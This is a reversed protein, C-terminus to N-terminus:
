SNENKRLLSSITFKYMEIKSVHDLSRLDIRFQIYNHMVNNAVYAPTHLQPLSWYNWVQDNEIIYRVDVEKGGDAQVFSIIVNSGDSDVYYQGNTINSNNSKEFGNVFVSQPVVTSPLAIIYQGSDTITYKQVIRNNKSLRSTNMSTGLERVLLGDASTATNTRGNGENYTPYGAASTGLTSQSIHWKYLKEDIANPNSTKILDNFNDLTYSIKTIPSTFPLIDGTRFRVDINTDAVTATSQNDLWKMQYWAHNDPKEFIKSYYIGETDVFLDATLVDQNLIMLGLISNEVAVNGAM